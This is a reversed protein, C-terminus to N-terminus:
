ELRVLRGEWAYAVVSRGLARSLDLSLWPDETLTGTGGGGLRQVLVPPLHPLLLPYRALLAEVRFARAWLRKLALLAEAPTPVLASGAEGSRRVWFPGEGRLTALFAEAREPLLYSERVLRDAEEAALLLREEDIRAGFVGQFLRQLREPLNNLQAFEEWLQEVWTDVVPVGLAQARQLLLVEGEQPAQALPILGPAGEFM